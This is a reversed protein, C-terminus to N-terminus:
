RQAQRKNRIPLNNDLIFMIVESGPNTDNHPTNTQQTSSWFLDM